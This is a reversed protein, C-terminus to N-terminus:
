ARRILKANFHFLSVKFTHSHLCVSLLEFKSLIKSACKTPISTTAAETKTQKGRVQREWRRLKSCVTKAMQTQLNIKSEFFFQTQTHIQSTLFPFFPKQIAAYWTDWLHGRRGLAATVGRDQMTLKLLLSGERRNLCKM